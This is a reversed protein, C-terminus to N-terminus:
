VTGCECGGDEPRFSAANGIPMPTPVAGGGQGPVRPAVDWGGDGPPRWDPGQPMTDILKGALLMLLTVETLALVTGADELAGAIIEKNLQDVIGQALDNLLWFFKM